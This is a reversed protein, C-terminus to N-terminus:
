AMHHYEKVLIWTFLFMVIAGAVLAAFGYWFDGVRAIMNYFGFIMILTGVWLFKDMVMKLIDFEQENTMHKKM